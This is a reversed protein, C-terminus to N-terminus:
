WFRTEKFFAEPAQGTYSKFDRVFHPQDFYGAAHAIDGLNAGELRRRVVYQLRSISALRKPSAGVIRRFKRELASQSLGVEQALEEIRVRGHARRIARAAYDVDPTAVPRLQSLLFEEITEVRRTHSPAEFLRDELPRLLQRNMVCDFPITDNFLEDLPPRLFASAGTETFLTLLIGGKAHTLKRVSDRLGALAFNPLRQGGQQGEGEFRFALVLSTDPMVTSADGADTEIVMFRKVFPRLTPSPALITPRM